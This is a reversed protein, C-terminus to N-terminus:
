NQLHDLDHQTPQRTHTRSLSFLFYPLPFVFLGCIEHPKNLRRRELAIGAIGGVLALAIPAGAADLEPVSSPQGPQTPSQDGDANINDENLPEMSHAQGASFLFAFGLAALTVKLTSRETM